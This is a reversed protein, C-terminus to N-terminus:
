LRTRYNIVRNVEEYGSRRHAAHSVDNDLLADSAMETRGRQRAWDEAAQLLQRGYGSKRVDADVFWAEIYGVPSSWCGDVVSREAAEVYGALTGDGRDIVFIHADERTLTQRLDAEDEELLGPFLSRAMRMLEDWDSAQSSRISFSTM